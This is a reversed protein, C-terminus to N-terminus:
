IRSTRWKRSRVWTSPFAARLRGGAAGPLRSHAEGESLAAMERRSSERRSSERGGSERTPAARRRVSRPWGAGRQGAGGRGGPFGGGGEAAARGAAARGAAGRGSLLPAGGYAGIGRTRQMDMAGIRVSDDRSVRFDVGYRSWRAAIASTVVNDPYEYKPLETKGEKLNRENAEKVAKYLAPATRLRADEMNTTFSTNVNAGNAYTVGVGVAVACFEGDGILTLTPAFLFFPIGRSGYFRKIKALISFPPNDVVACGDPYDFAEYDGGPWFPRVFGARDRGYEEAVWDAVADYVTEPTYCDDTTKKPKFKEVFEEYAEGKM